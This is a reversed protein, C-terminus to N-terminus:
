YRGRWYGDDNEPVDQVKPYYYKKCKNCYLGGKNWVLTKGCGCRSFTPEHKFESERGEILLDLINAPELVAEREVVYPEFGTEWCVMVGGPESYGLVVGRVGHARPHVVHDGPKFREPAESM